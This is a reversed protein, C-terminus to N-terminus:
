LYFDLYWQQCSVFKFWLLHLKQLDKSFSLHRSYRRMFKVRITSQTKKKLLLKQKAFVNSICTTVISIIKSKLKQTVFGASCLIDVWHHEISVKKITIGGSYCVDKQRKKIGACCRFKRRNDDFCYNATKRQVKFVALVESSRCDAAPSILKNM